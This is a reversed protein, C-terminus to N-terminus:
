AKVVGITLLLNAYIRQEATAIILATDTSKVLQYFEHRKRETLAIVGPLINEFEKFIEPTHGTEPIMVEASEIEIIGIFSELVQTVNVVGPSLNLYVKPTTALSGTSFPYNGDAILVKSGHGATGLIGLIEPHLLNGKLM